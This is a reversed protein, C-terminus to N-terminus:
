KTTAKQARKIYRVAYPCAAICAGCILDQELERSVETMHSVCADLDLRDDRSSDKQWLVGKIAHGPCAKACQMCTGCRPELMPKACPLPADTLLTSIRVAPGYEPTVLLCSKGIWGLGALCAVTKHPLATEYRNIKTKGACAKTLAFARYGRDTLFQEGALVIADLQANLDRYAQAYAATPAERIGAVIQTPVPVAVSVGVPYALLNSNAHESARANADAQNRRTPRLIDKLGAVSNAHENAYRGDVHRSANPLAQETLTPITADRLDAVGVLTAGEEALVARLEELLTQYNQSRAYLMAEKKWHLILRNGYLADNLM